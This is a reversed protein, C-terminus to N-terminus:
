TEPLWAKSWSSSISRDVGIAAPQVVVHGRSNISFYPDGWRELGYLEASRAVSWSRDTEALVMVGDNHIPQFTPATIGTM